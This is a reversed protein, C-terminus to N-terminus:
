RSGAATRPRRHHRRGGAVRRRDPRAHLERRRREGREDVRLLRGRRRRRRRRRDRRRGADAVARDAQRHRRGARARQARRVDPRQLRHPHRGGRLRDRLGHPGPRGAPSSFPYVRVKHREGVNSEWTNLADISFVERDAFGHWVSYFGFQGSPTFSTTGTVAPELSQFQADPVKFLQQKGSGDPGTYYGLTVVNPNSAGGKKGFTAMPELTVPGPGAAEFLPIPVEDGLLPADDNLFGTAPDDDGVNVPIEFTDMIWQVSPENQGGLAVQGLGRLTM